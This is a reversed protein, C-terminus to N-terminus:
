PFGYTDKQDAVYSPTKQLLIIQWRLDNWLSLSEKVRWFAVLSALIAWLSLGGPHRVLFLVTRMHSIM